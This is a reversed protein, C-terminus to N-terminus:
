EIVKGVINEDAFLIYDINNITTKTGTSNTRIIDGVNLQISTKPYNESIKIVEYLLVDNTEYTFGSALSKKNNTICKCLVQNNQPIIKM